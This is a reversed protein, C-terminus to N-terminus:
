LQDFYRRIASAMLGRRAVLVEPYSGARGGDSRKSMTTIYGYLKSHIYGWM